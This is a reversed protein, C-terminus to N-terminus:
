ETAGMGNTIQENAQRTHARALRATAQLSVRLTCELMSRSHIRPCARRHLLAILSRSFPYTATDLTFSRFYREFLLSKACMSAARDCRGHVDGIHM